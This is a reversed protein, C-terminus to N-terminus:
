DFRPFPPVLISGELQRGGRVSGGRFRRNIELANTSAVGGPLM